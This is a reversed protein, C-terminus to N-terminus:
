TSKSTRSPPNYGCSGRCQKGHVRVVGNKKKKKEQPHASWSMLESLIM